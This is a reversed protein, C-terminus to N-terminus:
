SSGGHDAIAYRRVFRVATGGLGGGNDSAGAIPGV